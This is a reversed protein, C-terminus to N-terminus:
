ASYSPSCFGIATTMFTQWSNDLLPWRYQWMAGFVASPAPLVFQEIRFVWVALEWLLFMAIIVLWPLVRRQAKRRLYFPKPPRVPLDAGDDRIDSATM